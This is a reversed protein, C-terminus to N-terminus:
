FTCYFPKVICLSKTKDLLIATLVYKDMVSGNLCLSEFRKFFTCANTEVNDVASFARRSFINYLKLGYLLGVFLGAGTAPSKKGKGREM